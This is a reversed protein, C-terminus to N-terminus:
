SSLGRQIGHLGKFIGHIRSFMSFFPFSIVVSLLFVISISIFFPLPQLCSSFFPFLFHRHRDRYRAPGYFLLTQPQM